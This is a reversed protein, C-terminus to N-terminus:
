LKRNLPVILFNLFHGALYWYACRTSRPDRYRVIVSLKVAISNAQCLLTKHYRTVVCFVLHSESELGDRRRRLCLSRCDAVASSRRSPTNQRVDAWWRRSTAPRPAWLFCWGDGFLQRRSPCVPVPRRGPAPARLRRSTSSRPLSSRRWALLLCPPDYVYVFPIKLSLLM